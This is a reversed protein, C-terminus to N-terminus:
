LAFDSLDKDVEEQSRHHAEVSGQSGIALRKAMRLLDHLYARLRPRWDDTIPCLRVRVVKRGNNRVPPQFFVVVENGFVGVDPSALDQRAAAATAEAFTAQLLRVGDQPHKQLFLWVEPANSAEDKKLQEVEVLLIRVDGNTARQATESVLYTPYLKRFESPVHRDTGIHRGRCNRFCIAVFDELSKADLELWKETLTKRRNKLEDGLSSLLYELVVPSESGTEHAAFKVLQVVGARARRLLIAGNFLVVLAAVVTVKLLWSASGWLPLLTVLSAAATAALHLILDQWFQKLLQRMPRGADPRRLRVVAARRIIEGIVLTFAFASLLVVAIVAPEPTALQSAENWLRKPITADSSDIVFIAIVVEDFSVFFGVVTAFFAPRLMNPLYVFVLTQWHNAGLTHSALLMLDACSERAAEFVLFQLPLVLVLHGIWLALWESADIRGAVFRLALAYAIPPTLLILICGALSASDVILSGFRIAYSYLVLVATGVASVTMAIVASYIM